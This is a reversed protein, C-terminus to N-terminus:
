MDSAFIAASAIFTAISTTLSTSTSLIVPLRPFHHRHGPTGSTNPLLTLNVSLLLFGHRGNPAAAAPTQIRRKKLNKPDARTDLLGGTLNVSQKHLTKLM